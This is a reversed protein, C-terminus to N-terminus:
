VDLLQLQCQNAGKKIELKKNESKSRVGPWGRRVCHNKSNYEGGSAIFAFLIEFENIGRASLLASFDYSM